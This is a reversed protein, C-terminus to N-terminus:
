SNKLKEIFEEVTIIEKLTEFKYVINGNIIIYNEPRDEEDKKILNKLSDIHWENLTRCDLEDILDDTDFDSIDVEVEITKGM